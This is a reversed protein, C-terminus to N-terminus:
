FINSNQDVFITYNNAGNTIVELDITRYGQNIIPPKATPLDNILEILEFNADDLSQEATSIDNYNREFATLLPGYVLAMARTTPAPTGEKTQNLFGSIVTNNTIEDDLELNNHTPMTYTELAFDKQVSESSLWLSLEVAAVKQLSQKSVTWGKYTILPSMREETSEIMPLLTQGISLRSAEYTAWNWPGDIIMAAKSSIFQNKMGEIQTGTAVVSHNLELDLIWNMSESSGSSNLTPNGYQDFLSGGFGEQFPFWWYPTTIPLALGQIDDYTLLKATNLFDIETWSENPYDLGRADFLAKNYILSLCDQSAPIGYLADNYRMAELARSDFQARQTPTLHPRLDELLPQGDVRVEGITGLQDSSLRMLDPAGGGQAATMFLQDAGNYPIRTIEVTINPNNEQFLSIANNFSEEEKSEAAFTHWVEIAIEDNNIILNSEDTNTSDNPSFIFMACAYLILFCFILAAAKKRNDTFTSTVM